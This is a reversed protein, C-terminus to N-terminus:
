TIILEQYYIKKLLIRIKYNNLDLGHWDDVISDMHKLRNQITSSGPNSNNEEPPISQKM